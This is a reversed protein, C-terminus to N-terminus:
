KRRALVFVLGLVVVAGGVVLVAGGTNGQATLNGQFLGGAVALNNPNGSPQRYILEGTPTRQILTGAPTLFGEAATAAGTAITQLTDSWAGVGCGRGRRAPKGARQWKEFPSEASWSDVDQGIHPGGTDLILGSNDPRRMLRKGAPPNTVAEGSWLGAREGAAEIDHDALASEHAPGGILDFRVAAADNETLMGAMEVPVGGSYLGARGFLTRIPLIM